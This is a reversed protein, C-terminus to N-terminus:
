VANARTPVLASSAELYDRQELSQTPAAVYVDILLAVAAVAVLSRPAAPPINQVFGRAILM